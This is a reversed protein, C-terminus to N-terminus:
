TLQASLKLTFEFIASACACSMGWMLPWDQRCLLYNQSKQASLALSLILPAKSITCELAISKLALLNPLFSSCSGAKVDCRNFDLCTKVHPPWFRSQPQFCVLSWCSAFATTRVFKSPALESCSRTAKNWFCNFRKLWWRRRKIFSVNFGCLKAKVRTLPQTAEAISLLIDTLLSVPKM